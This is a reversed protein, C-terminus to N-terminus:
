SVRKLISKWREGYVNFKKLDEELGNCDDGYQVKECLSSYSSEMAKTQDIMTLAVKDIKEKLEERQVDIKRRIEQFHNHIDANLSTKDQRLVDLLQYFEVLSEKSTAKSLMEVDSLHAEKELLVKFIKNSKCELTDLFFQKTQM